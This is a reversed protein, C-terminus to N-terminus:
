EGGKAALVAEASILRVYDSRKMRYRNTAWGNGRANFLWFEDKDTEDKDGVELERLLTPMDRFQEPLEGPGWVIYEDKAPESRERRLKLQLQENEEVIRKYDEALRVVAAFKNEGLQAFDPLVPEPNETCEQFVRDVHELAEKHLVKYQNEEEPEVQKSEWKKRAAAMERLESVQWCADSWEVKPLVLDDSETILIASVVDPVSWFSEFKELRDDSLYTDGDEDKAIWSNEIFCGPVRVLPPEGEPLEGAKSLIYEAMLDLDEDSLISDGRVRSAADVVKKPINM